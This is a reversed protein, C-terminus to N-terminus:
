TSRIKSDARCEARNSGHDITIIQLDGAMSPVIRYNLMQGQSSSTKEKNKLSYYPVRVSSSLICLRCSVPLGALASWLETHLDVIGSTRASCEWRYPRIYYALTFLSDSHCETVECLAYLRSITHLRTSPATAPGCEKGFLLGTLLARDHVTMVYVESCVGLRLSKCMLLHSQTSVSPYASSDRARIQSYNLSVRINQFCVFM